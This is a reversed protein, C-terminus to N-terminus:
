LCFFNLEFFSITLFFKFGHRDLELLELEIKVGNEELGKRQQLPFRTKVGRSFVQGRNSNVLISNMQCYHDIKREIRCGGTVV